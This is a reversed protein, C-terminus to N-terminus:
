MITNFHIKTIEALRNDLIIVTNFDQYFLNIKLPNFTNASTIKGLQFNAYSIITDATKKYFSASQDSYYLTGFTDVGFIQEVKINSTEKLEATVSEQSLGYFSCFIILYFLREM